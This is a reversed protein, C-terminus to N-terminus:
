RQDKRALMARIQRWPILGSNGEGAPFCYVSIGAPEEYFWMDRNRRRKAGHTFSYTHLTYMPKTRLHKDSMWGGACGVRRLIKRHRM